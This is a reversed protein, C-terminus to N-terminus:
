QKENVTVEKNVKAITKTKYEDEGEAASKLFMTKVTLLIIQFDLIISYNSIYYLDYCTRDHIYTSYRGYVHSLATLGAKVKFRYDYNEIEKEFQEVFVPREPRPGVVSMDGKFINILQPLEDLRCARLLNGVKTIRPDNKQAFVPGSYKEADSIMTRFKYIEFTKKDKTYRTQKYFVPGKSTLKIAAAILLMPIAAVVLGLGSFLIDVIRKIGSELRSLSHEPIYLTLIDDFRVLHASCKGIDIIKPVVFLEKNLQMAKKVAINYEGDSLGDLICISDFEPFRENVFETMYEEGSGDIQEYWADYISTVGYKIRKMRSFNKDQNDVILLKAKRFRKSNEFYANLVANGLVLLLMCCVVTMLQIKFLAFSMFLVLNALSLLFFSIVSSLIIIVNKEWLGSVSPKYKEFATMLFVTFVAFLCGLVFVNRDGVKSISESFLSITLSCALVLFCDWFINRKIEKQFNRKRVKNAM